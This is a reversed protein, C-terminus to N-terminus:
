KAYKSIIEFIEEMQQEGSGQELATKVCGQIHQHLISLNSNKLLSQVALIQKSIEVCYRDEDVMRIIADLQGRATKLKNLVKIKDNQKM